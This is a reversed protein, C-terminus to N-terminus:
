PLSSLYEAVARTELPTLREVITHM